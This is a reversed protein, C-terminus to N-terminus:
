GVLRKEEKLITNATKHRQGRWMHNIILKDTAVFYGAPNSSSANFRYFLTPLISMDVVNLERDMLM